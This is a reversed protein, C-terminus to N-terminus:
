VMNSILLLFICGLHKPSKNGKKVQKKSAAQRVVGNGSKVTVSTNTPHKHKIILTNCLFHLLCVFFNCKLHYIKGRKQMIYPPTYTLCAEILFDLYRFRVSLPGLM